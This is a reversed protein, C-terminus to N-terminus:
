LLEVYGTRMLFVGREVARRVRDKLSLTQETWSAGIRDPGYIVEAIDRYTRGELHGDLAILYDRLKTPSGDRWTIKPTNVRALRSLSQLTETARLSDKYGEIEFTACRQGLLISLGRASLRVSEPGHRVIVQETDCACLVARNVNFDTLSLCENADPAALKLTVGIHKTLHEPLWFVDTDNAARMPDPFFQLKWKEAMPFRRRCRFYTAGSVHRVPRPTGNRGVKADLKFEGNRRLFEWAWGPRDIDRTYAYDELRRDWATGTRSARPM